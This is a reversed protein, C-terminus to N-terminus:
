LGRRRVVLPSLVEHKERKMAVDEGVVDERVNDILGNTPSSQVDDHHGLDEAGEGRLEVLDNLLRRCCCTM